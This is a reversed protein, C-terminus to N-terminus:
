VALHTVAYRFDGAFDTQTYFMRTSCINAFVLTITTM